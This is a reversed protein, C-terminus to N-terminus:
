YATQIIVVPDYPHYINYLNECHPIAMEDGRITLFMGLNSILVYGFKILNGLPSGILFLNEVPFLLSPMHVHPNHVPPINKKWALVNSNLSTPMETKPNKSLLDYCIVSGLSHALISVKGSFNIHDRKFTEYAINLQTAVENYIIGGFTQSMFYFVDLVTTSVFQRLAQLNKPTVKDITRHRFNSTMQRFSYKDTQSHLAKHWEVVIIETKFDKNATLPIMVDRNKLLKPVIEKWREEHSGVGHVM